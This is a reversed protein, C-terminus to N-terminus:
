YVHMTGDARRVLAMFARKYPYQAAKEEDVDVGLGPRENPYLMGDRM